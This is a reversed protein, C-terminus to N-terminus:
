KEILYAVFAENGKKIKDTKLVRFTIKFEENPKVDEFYETGWDSTNSVENDRDDRFYVGLCLLSYEKGSCNKIMGTFEYCDTGLVSVDKYATKSVRFLLNNNADTIDFTSLLKNTMKGAALVYQNKNNKENGNNNNINSNDSNYNELVKEYDSGELAKNKVIDFSYNKTVKPSILGKDFQMMITLYQNGNLKKTSKAEAKGDNLDTKGNFGFGWIRCNNVNINKGNKLKLNWEVNTPFTGMNPNVFMFNFGNYDTYAEVLSSIDYKFTYTNSGKKSIGFCLEIGSDAKNIGCKYAKDEFSRNIDWKNENDFKKNEMTVEFNSVEFNKNDIPLYCETGEDFTGSWKQTITASGDDNVDVNIVINNIANKAFLNFNLFLCSLPIIIFLLKLKMKM